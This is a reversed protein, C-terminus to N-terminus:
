CQDVPMGCMSVSPQTPDWKSLKVFADGLRTATHHETLASLSAADQHAISVLANVSQLVHSLSGCSIATTVQAFRPTLPMWDLVSVCAKRQGAAIRPLAHAATYYWLLACVSVSCWRFGDIYVRGVEVGIDCSQPTTCWSLAYSVHNHSQYAPSWLKFRRQLSMKSCNRRLSSQTAVFQNALRERCCPPAIALEVTPICAKGWPPQCCHAFTAVLSSVVLSGAHVLQVPDPSRLLHMHSVHSDSQQREQDWRRRRGYSCSIIRPRSRTACRGCPRACFQCTVCEKQRRSRLSCLNLIGDM